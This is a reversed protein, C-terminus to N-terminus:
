RRRTKGAHDYPNFGGGSDRKPKLPQSTTTAAPVDPAQTRKPVPRIDTKEIALEDNELLKLLRQTEDESDWQWRSGARDAVVKGARNESLSSIWKKSDPM